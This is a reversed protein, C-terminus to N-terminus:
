LAYFFVFLCFHPFYKQPTGKDLISLILDSTTSALKTLMGTLVSYSTSEDEKIRAFISLVTSLATELCCSSLQSSIITNLEGDEPLSKSTFSFRQNLSMFSDRETQLINRLTNIPQSVVTGSLLSHVSQRPPMVNSGVLPISLKSIFSSAEEFKSRYFDKDFGANTQKATLDYTSAISLNELTFPHIAIMLLSFFDEFDKGEASIYSVMTIRILRSLKVAFATGSTTGYKSVHMIYDNRFNRLLGKITVYFTELDVEVLVLRWTTLIECLVELAFNQPIFNLKLMSSGISGEVIKALENIIQVVLSSHNVGLGFKNSKKLANNKEDIKLQSSSIISSIKEFVLGILQRTTGFAATTVSTTYKPETLSFAISLLPIVLQDNLFLSYNDDKTLFTAIQVLLQLVKLHLEPKSLHSVIQIQLVRLINQIDDAPVVNHTLLLMMGNLAMTILKFSADSYNCMLIYPSILDSSPPFSDKPLAAISVPQSSQRIVQTVYVERIAKLKEIAQDAAEVVEPYKKGAEQSIELLDENMQRLYEM